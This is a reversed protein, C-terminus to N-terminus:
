SREESREEAVRRLQAGGGCGKWKGSLGMLM